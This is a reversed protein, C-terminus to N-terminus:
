LVKEAIGFDICTDIQLTYPMDQEYVISSNDFFYGVSEYFDTRCYCMNGDFHYLFRTADQYRHAVVFEDDLLGIVKIKKATFSSPYDDYIMQQLLGEKRIPSTPQLIAFRDTPYEKLVQDICNELKTDDVIERVYLVSNAICWDIKKEDDTSVIPSTGESLAYEVSHQYLPIGNLLMSNKEPLRSSEKKAPIIVIM